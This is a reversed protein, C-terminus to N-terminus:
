PEDRASGLEKAICRGAQCSPSTRKQPPRCLPVPCQNPGPHCLAIHAELEAAQKKTVVRPNCMTPCCDGPGVRTFGCDDDSTCALDDAGAAALQATAPQAALKEAAEAATEPGPATKQAPTTLTIDPAPPVVPDM